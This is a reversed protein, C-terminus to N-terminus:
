GAGLQPLAGGGALSDGEGARRGVMAQTGVSIASLFGGVLWLLALSFALMAQGDSREPEGLLGIFYTDVLNIATQTLLALMAPVALYLIRTVDDRALFTGPESTSSLTM